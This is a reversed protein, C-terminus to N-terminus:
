FIPKNISYNRKEKGQKQLELQAESSKEEDSKKLQAIWTILHNKYPNSRFKMGDVLTKLQQQVFKKKPLKWGVVGKLIFKQELYIKQLQFLHLNQSQCCKYAVYASRVFSVRKNDFESTDMKKPNKMPPAAPPTGRNKRFSLEMTPLKMGKFTNKSKLHINGKGPSFESVRKAYAYLDLIKKQM